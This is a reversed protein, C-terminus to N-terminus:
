CINISYGSRVPSEGSPEPFATLRLPLFPNWVPLLTSVVLVFCPNESFAWSVLHCGLLIREPHSPAPWAFKQPLLPGPLHLALESTRLHWCTQSQGQLCDNPRPGGPLLKDPATLAPGPHPSSCGKNHPLIPCMRLVGLESLATTM